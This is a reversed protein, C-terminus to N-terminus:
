YSTWIAGSGPSAKLYSRSDLICRVLSGGIVVASIAVVAWFASSITNGAGHIWAHLLDQRSKELTVAAIACQGFKQARRAKMREGDTADPKGQHSVRAVLSHHGGSVAWGSQEFIQLVREALAGANIGRTLAPRYELGVECLCTRASPWYKPGGHVVRTDRSNKHDRQLDPCDPKAHEAEVPGGDSAEVTILQGVRQREGVGGDDYKEAQLVLHFGTFSQMWLEDIRGTRLCFDM